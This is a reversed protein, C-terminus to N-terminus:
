REQDDLKIIMEEPEVSDKMMKVNVELLQELSIDM